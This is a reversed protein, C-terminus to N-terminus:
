KCYVEKFKLNAENWEPTLMSDGLGHHIVKIPLVGCAVKKENARLCFAIDYFHFNFNIDFELEKQKLDDIKCAFFLGDLILARCNTKGFISTWVNNNRDKHSVEGVYDEVPSSLHWALNPSQKNFSKAGALGTISYPSNALKEYLFLDELEVDDHVFLAIKDSYGPTNLIENYRESLGQKNDKFIHM